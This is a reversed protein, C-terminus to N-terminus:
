VSTVTVRSTDFVAIERTTIPINADGVPAPATGIDFDTIDIVGSVKFAECKIKEAIVDEGAVLTNGLDFLVCKVKM